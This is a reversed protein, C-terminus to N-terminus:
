SLTAPGGRWVMVVGVAIFWALGSFAGIEIAYGAWGGELMSYIFASAVASGAASVFGVGCVWKPLAGTRWGALGFGIMAIAWTILEADFLMRSSAYTLWLLQPDGSANDFSHFALMELGNAILLNAVHLVGGFLGVVEWGGGRAGRGGFMVFLGSYFIAMCVIAVYRMGHVIAWTAHETALYRATEEASMGAAPPTKLVINAVVHIAMAALMLAGGIRVIGYPALNTDAAANTVEVGGSGRM